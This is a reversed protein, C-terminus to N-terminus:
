CTVRSESDQSHASIASIDIDDEVKAKKPTAAPCDHTGSNISTSSEAKFFTQFSIETKKLENYKHVAEELSYAWARPGQTHKKKHKLTLNM